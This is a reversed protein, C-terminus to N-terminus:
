GLFQRYFEWEHELVRARNSGQRFGHRENAFSLWGVPLGASKLAQYLQRTQVVPVVPDLEGQFFILPMKFNEHHHIPSRELYEKRARQPDGILWHLYCSEFKHTQRDLLLLDSIGYHSAGSCIGAAQARPDSLARLVTYGGASNGRIFIKGRETWGRSLAYACAQYVDELELKGWNGKLCHRYHRGFGSSGRYNIDLISFGRQIWFQKLPDYGTDAMSSPGGHLQILLPPATSRVGSDLSWGQAAYYFGYAVEGASTEFSVPEPAGNLIEKQRWTKHLDSAESFCETSQISELRNVRGTRQDVVVLRATEVATEAILHIHGQWCSLGHCRSWVGDLPQLIGHDSDLIGLRTQGKDILSCVIKNASLLCYSRLGLQWQAVGFEAAMPLLCSIEGKNLQYLNWWGTRDSVFYLTDDLGFEPQFISEDHGAYNGTTLEQQEVPLGGAGLQALTLRTSLWPQFPHDWSIWAMWSGSPSIRPSAYFDAGEAIIERRGDGCHIAVLRNIVVEGAGHVEEVALVRQHVPDFNLDGYRNGNVACLRQIRQPNDFSFQYLGQDAENVFVVGEKTLCYAGGGYEHVRSRVSFQEPTLRRSPLNGKRGRLRVSGLQPDFELWCLWNGASRVESWQLGQAAANLASIPAPAPQCNM